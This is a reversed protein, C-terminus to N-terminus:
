GQAAKRSMAAIDAGTMNTYKTSGSLGSTSGGVAAASLVRTANDVETDVKTKAAVHEKSVRRQKAMNGFKYALQVRQAEPVSNILNALEPDSDILQKFDEELVSKADPNQIAFYATSVQSELQAMRGMVKETNHADIAKKQAPTIYDADTIGLESYIDKEEVQPANAARIAAQQDSFNAKDEALRRKEVEVDLREKPVMIPETSAVAEKEEAAPDIVGTKEDSM